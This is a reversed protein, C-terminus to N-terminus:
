QDISGALERKHGLKGIAGHGCCGHGQQDLIPTGYDDGGRRLHRERWLRGDIGGIRHDDGLDIVGLGSLAMAVMIIRLIMVVAVVATVVVAMVMVPLLMPIAQPVGSQSSLSQCSRRSGPTQPKGVGLSPGPTATWPVM